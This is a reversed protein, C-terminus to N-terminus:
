NKKVKNESTVKIAQETNPSSQTSKRRRFNNPNGSCSSCKGIRWIIGSVKKEVVVAMQHAVCVRNGPYLLRHTFSFFSDEVKSTFLSHMYEIKNGVKQM